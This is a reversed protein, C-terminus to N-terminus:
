IFWCLNCQILQNTLYTSSQYQITGNVNVRIKIRNDMLSSFQHMKPLLGNPISSVSLTRWENDACSLLNQKHDIVANVEKDTYYISVGNLNEVRYGKVNIQTNSTSASYFDM